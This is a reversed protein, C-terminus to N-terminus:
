YSFKSNTLQVKLRKSENELLSSRCAGITCAESVVSTVSMTFLFNQVDKSTMLYQMCRAAQTAEHPLSSAERLTELLNVIFSESKLTSCDQLFVELEGSQALACLANALVTIARRRMISIHQEDVQTDANSLDEQAAALVTELCSGELIKKSVYGSAECRTIQELSEMGILKSDLLESSLQQM